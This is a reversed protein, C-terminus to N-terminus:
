NSSHKLSEHECHDLNKAPRALPDALGPSLVLPIPPGLFVISMADGCFNSWRTTLDLVSHYGLIHNDIAFIIIIFVAIVIIVVIIIIVKSQGDGM